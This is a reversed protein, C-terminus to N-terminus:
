QAPAPAPAAQASTAAVRSKVVIAYQEYSFDLSALGGLYRLAESMPINTLSMTVTQTKIQEDPVQVVFNIAVKNGSNKAASTKLFDLASGLTADRFEIKPVILKELQKQLPSGAPTKAEQAAIMKLYGIAVTNKPDIKYASSFNKKATEMDGRMYATQADSLLQPLAQAPSEALVSTVLLTPVILSTFLFQLTKM